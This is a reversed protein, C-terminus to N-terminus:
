IATTFPDPILVLGSGPERGLSIIATEIEPVPAIIPAVKLAAAATEISPMYTSATATDPNFMIAARERLLQDSNRGM